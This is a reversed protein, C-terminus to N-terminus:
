AEHVIWPMAYMWCTRCLAVRDRQVRLNYSRLELRRRRQQQQRHNRLELRQQPVVVLRLPRRRHRQKAPQQRRRWLVRCHARRLLRVGHRRAQHARRRRRCPRVRTSRRRQRGLVRVQEIHTVWDPHLSHVPTCSLTTLVMSGAINNAAHQYYKKHRHNAAHKQYPM